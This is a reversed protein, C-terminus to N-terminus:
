SEEGESQREYYDKVMDDLTKQALDWVAKPIATLLWALPGLPDELAANISTSIGEILPKLTDEIGKVLPAVAKGVEDSIWKLPGLPDKLWDEVPKTVSSVLWNLPGQSDKLAANLPTTVASILWALPGQPDKLVALIPDVIPSIIKQVEALIWASDFITFAQWLCFPEWIVIDWPPIIVDIGLINVWCLLGKRITFGPLCLAPLELRIGPVPPPPPPVVAPPPAVLHAECEAQSPFYRNCAPCYWGGPVRLTCTHVPPAPPAVGVTFPITLPKSADVRGRGIEKEDVYVIWDWVFPPYSNTDVCVTHPGVALDMTEEKSFRFYGWGIVCGPQQTPWNWPILTGDIFRGHYRASGDNPTTAEYRLKVSVM